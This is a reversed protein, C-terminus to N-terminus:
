GNLEGIRELLTDFGETTNPAFYKALKREILGIEKEPHMKFMTHNAWVELTNGKGFIKQGSTELAAYQNYYNVGHGYGMTEKTIAGLYDNFYESFQFDYNSSQLVSTNDIVKNKLKIKFELIAKSSAKVENFDLYKIIEDDTLVDSKYAKNIKDYYENFAKPVYKGGVIEPPAKKAIEDIEDQFAKFRKSFGKSLVKDDDIIKSVLHSSLINDKTKNNAIGTPVKFDKLIKKRLNPNTLLVDNLKFDIRHTYEHMFILQRKVKDKAFDGVEILDLDSAPNYYAGKGKTARINKTPKLLYIAKSYSSESQGFSEEVLNREENSLDGYIGKKEPTKFTPEEFDKNEWEPDTPQWHHRCNYGGRKIFPDGQAKGEWTTSSWIKRIEEESYTKGVHRKCFDRSDRVTTGSYVYHDLGLEDARYKAFQGDFGMLSDQVMQTAYRRLNNGLRDRGYITNLRTAATQIAETKDPNDRIFDVLEKAEQNDTSQYVGNIKGRLNAIMEDTSTGTLTSNYVEQALENAFENGLDEFPLYAARKLQQITTLDLETIQKFEDPIPYKKFTGVLWSAAKDYENINSQISTLYTNEIINKLKPRIAIAATTRLKLTGRAPNIKSAEAIVQNELEYLSDQLRKVHSDSLDTVRQQRYNALKEIIDM